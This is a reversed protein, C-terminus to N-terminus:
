PTGAPRRLAGLGLALVLCALTAQSVLGTLRRLPTAQLVIVVEHEGAPLAFAMTGRVPVPTVEVPAGDVAVQWGPYYFTAAEVRTPAAARVAFVQRASQLRQSVIELPAELGVLRRTTHPPRQEVWRPEYEERTTTNLGRAAISEPAYYEDDFTLYRKPETHALNVLVVLALTAWLALRPLRHFAASSLLSLCLAPLFLARWPYALYQLIDLRAWLAASWTTALWSGALAVTLLV